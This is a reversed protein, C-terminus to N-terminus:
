YGTTLRGYESTWAAAGCISRHFHTQKPRPDETKPRNEILVL